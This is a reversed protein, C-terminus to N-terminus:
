VPGAARPEPLQVAGLSELMRAIDPGALRFYRHRGQAEVAIIGADLLRSLHESATSPAVGAHRALESGTRARGDMLVTLFQARTTDALLAGIRTLQALAMVGIYERCM